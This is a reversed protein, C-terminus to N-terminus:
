KVTETAGRVRSAKRFAHIATNRIRERLTGGELFELVLFRRGRDEDMAHITAINPHNLASIARAEAEFRLIKDPSAVIEPPLFKLAVFRHLSLDRAKYVVGMGGEGLKAVIEYHTVTTGITM